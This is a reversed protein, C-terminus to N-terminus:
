PYVETVSCKPCATLYTQAGDGAAVVRDGDCEPCPPVKRKKETRLFADHAAAATALQFVTQVMAGTAETTLPALGKEAMDLALEFSSVMAKLRPLIDGRIRTRQGSSSM